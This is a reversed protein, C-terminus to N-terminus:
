ANSRNSARPKRAARSRTKAPPRWARLDELTFGLSRADEQLMSRYFEGLREGSERDVDNHWQLLWPILELIGALLPQLRERSWGEAKCQEFYEALALAQQLHDWGAWGVVLSNDADRQCHPCSIFREKPVDLKGRLRWTDSKQFDDQKYKPPVPIRGVSEGRDEQRQLEWAREWQARKDLGTETYRLVPLFPVAEAEVLESVLAAVDFDDRARYLAAVQMFDADNRAIDALRACSTVATQSWYAPAELRNLLWSRVAREVRDEWPEQQWRRKYEPQEILAIHPHSEILSIRAEVIRKYDDPWHAPLETIPTSGHRAFWATELDGAAMKRAMVIEFAREGLKLPPATAPDVCLPADPCIAYLRYCLWDLEEQLAVMQCRDNDFQSRMLDLDRTGRPPSQTLQTELHELRQACKDLTAALHRATTDTKIPLPGIATCNFNYYNDWANNGSVRAGNGDLGAGKNFGVQKMWFCIASTNLTGLLAIHDDRSHQGPLKIIPATRNFVKGGEDLAFHSHTSVFAYAISLPTRLKSATLRGYEYWNLGSQVKTKSGFMISNSLNTRFPWLYKFLAPDDRSLDIPVIAGDYPFAAVEGNHITWDRIADGTVMPRIHRSQLRCRSAVHLPLVYVDDELTFSTIGISEAVDELRVPAEAEIAKKLEAVGGGGLNWPHEGLLTREVDAISVYDNREGVSDVLEVVSRWVQGMAPDPPTHHDGRIGMVARVQGNTASRNRGFLIVTPTGHGPISANSTDVVHTLDLRPLVDQILKKGFVATMFANDVILGVYGAEDNSQALDFFRETFPLSLHFVGSASTYRKRVIEKHAEDKDTIYPPNGVVAHYQRSLIETAERFDSQAFADPLWDGPLFQQGSRDFRRGHLLSDGTAVHVRFGPADALRTLDCAQLAAVLLRFRAIAVAFPNLDVGYVSDLARQALEIPNTSPDRRQWRDLLRHFADLLFHGSGCTPDIMRVEELGFTEIAPDLTRDLIFSAVFDPTQLLAYRKKAWESVDQYIDGLFRTDRGAAFPRVLLGTAPERARWFELLRRAGDGSVGIDWLPVRGEGLLPTVAPLQAWRRFVHQLYERDTERPHSTFYLEQADHAHKLREGEGAIMVDPVLDNDEMFRVFVCALIWSVAVQTLYEDRWAEFTAQTRQAALAAQHAKELREQYEAVESVRTRLDKELEALLKRLDRVLEKSIGRKETAVTM